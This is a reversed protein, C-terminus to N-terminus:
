MDDANDNTQELNLGRQIIAPNALSNTDEQIAMPVENTTNSGQGLETHQASICHSYKHM